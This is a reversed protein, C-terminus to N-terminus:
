LGELNCLLSLALEVLSENRSFLGLKAPGGDPRWSLGVLLGQFHLCHRGLRDGGATTEVCHVHLLVHVKGVLLFIHAMQLLAGLPPELIRVGFLYVGVVHVVSDGLFDESDVALQDLMLLLLCSLCARLYGRVSSAASKLIQHHNSVAGDNIALTLLFLLVSLLEVAVVVVEVLLLNQLM